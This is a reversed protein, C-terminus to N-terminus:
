IRLLLQHRKRQREAEKRRRVKAACDPCYKGRNTPAFAAGCVACRKRSGRYLLAASLEGTLPCSLWVSGRRRLSWIGRKGQQRSLESM